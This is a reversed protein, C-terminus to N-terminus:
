EEFTHVFVIDTYNEEDSSTRNIHLRGSVNGTNVEEVFNFNMRTAYRAKDRMERERAQSARNSCGIICIITILVVVGILLVILKKM